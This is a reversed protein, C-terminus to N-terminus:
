YGTLSMRYDRILPHYRLREIGAKNIPLDLATLLYCLAETARLSTVFARFEDDSDPNFHGHASKGRLWVARKLHGVADGPLIGSGFKAEVMSLLRGFHQEATEAKIRKVSGAVRDRLAQPLGLEVAKEGAAASIADIAADSLAPQAKAVPLDEFWRCASILRESSITNKLGFSVVMLTYAEKWLKARNAWVALCAQLSGIERDDWACVPSGGVWLDEDDIKAEPWIYHVAHHGPYERKQLAAVMDAFSVRDIEIESPKLKVGFCFSLFQVYTLVDQMYQDISRPEDFEIAFSPWFEKPANFDMGYTAGYQARLTMGDVPFEFLKFNDDDPYKRALADVKKRHHMLQKTHRVRFTVRKIGDEPTWADHGIVAVNSVVDQRYTTRDPQDPKSHTGPITTINSHLSVIDNTETRLFLPQEGKIHFHDSFSYIHTRIREESLLVTGTLNKGTVLEQCHLPEGIEFRPM